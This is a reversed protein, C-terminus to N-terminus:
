AANTREQAKIWRALSTEECYSNRGIRTVPPAIGIQQWRWFTSESVGLKMAALRRPVLRIDGIIKTKEAQMQDRM